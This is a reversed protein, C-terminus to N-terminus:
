TDKWTRLAERAAGRCEAGRWAVGCWKGEGKAACMDNNV